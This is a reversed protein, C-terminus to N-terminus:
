DTCECSISADTVYTDSSLNGKSHKKALTEYNVDGLGFMGFRMEGNNGKKNAVRANNKELKAWWKVNNPTNNKRCARRLEKPLGKEIEKKAAMIASINRPGKLFCYVCNSLNIDTPLHPRIGSPQRAWFDQVQKQDLGLEYLPAYSYEGPPHDNHGRTEQGNNRDVMRQYRATEGARFGLFTLFKQHHPGRLSVRNPIRAGIRFNEQGSFLKSPKSFADFNQGKRNRQYKALRTQRDDFVKRNMTGGNSRHELFLEDLDVMSKKQGHGLNPIAPLGGLYDSLFLRTVLMKMMTTCSRTFVSPLMASWLVSEEFVEGRWRYGDKNGPGHPRSNVLRYSPKRRWIGNVVDEITQFEAILFPVSRRECYRKMKAVFDYTIPHEAATNTFLVVDGRDARLLGNELMTVLMMGSSRGGSFKVVHPLRSHDNELYHIISPVPKGGHWKRLNLRPVAAAGTRPSKPQPQM